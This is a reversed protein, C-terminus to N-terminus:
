ETQSGEHRFTRAFSWYKYDDPPDPIAFYVHAIRGQVDPQRLALAFARAIEVPPNGFVGAGWAGLILSDVGHHVAVQLVRHARVQMETTAQQKEFEREQPQMKKKNNVNDLVSQNVACSTIISCTYPASLLPLTRAEPNVESDRFVPVHPSFIMNSSYLKISAKRSRNQEHFKYFPAAAPTTLSAYLGSTSALAEEQALAGRIFGGGPHMASAFNLAALHGVDVAQEALRRACGFTTENCVHVQTTTTTRPRVNGSSSSNVSLSLVQDAPHFVTNACAAQLSASLDVSVPDSSREQDDNSEWPRTTYSQKTLIDLTEQAIEARRSRNM